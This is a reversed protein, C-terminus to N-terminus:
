EPTDAPEPTNGEAVWELYKQYDANAPDFPIVAHDELRCVHNMDSLLWEPKAILKYMEYSRQHPEM